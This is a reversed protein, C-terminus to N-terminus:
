PGLSPFLRIAALGLGLVLGVDVVFGILCILVAKETSDLRLSERIAVVMAAIIWIGTVVALVPRLFPLIFSLIRLLGPSAAFGTARFYGAWDAPRSRSRSALPGTGLWYGLGLWAFWGILSVMFFLLFPGIGGREDTLNRAAAGFNILLTIVVAPVTAGEDAAM